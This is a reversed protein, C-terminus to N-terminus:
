SGNIKRRLLQTLIEVFGPQKTVNPMSIGASWRRLVSRSTGLHHYFDEETIGAFIFLVIISEWQELAKKTDALAVMEPDFLYNDLAWVLQIALDPPETRELHELADSLTVTSFSVM